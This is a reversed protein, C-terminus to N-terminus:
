EQYTRTEGPVLITRAVEGHWYDWALVSGHELNVGLGSAMLGFTSPSLIRNPINAIARFDAVEDGSSITFQVRGRYQKLLSEAYDRDDTVVLVHKIDKLDSFKDLSESYFGGTLKPNRNLSIFDGGRIHLVTDFNRLKESEIRPIPKMISSLMMLIADFDSQTLCEQFYGDLFLKSSKSNNLAKRFNYDTVFPNFSSRFRLLKPLRLKTLFSKKFVISVGLEEASRSYDLVEKLVYKHSTEYNSIQSSDIYLRSIGHRRALLLAGGIQFLQNGLGGYIRLSIV